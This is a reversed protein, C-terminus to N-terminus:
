SRCMDSGRTSSMPSRPPARGLAVRPPPYTPRSSSAFSASSASSPADRKQGSPTRKSSASPAGHAEVARARRMRDHALRGTGMQGPSSGCGATQTPSPATSSGRPTCAGHISGAAVGRQGGGGCGRLRGSGGGDGDGGDGGDGGGSVRRGAASVSAGQFGHVTSSVPLVVLNCANLEKVLALACVIQADITRIDATITGAVCALLSKCSGRCRGIGVREYPRGPVHPNHITRERM